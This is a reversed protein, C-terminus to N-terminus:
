ILNLKIDIAIGVSSFSIAFPKISINELTKLIIEEEIVIFFGSGAIVTLENAKRM